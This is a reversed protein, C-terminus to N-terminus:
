RGESRAKDIAAQLADRAAADQDQFAQLEDSTLDRGEAEAARIAKSIAAAKEILTLALTIALNLNQPNM